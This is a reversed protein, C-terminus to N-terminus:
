KLEGANQGFSPEVKLPLEPWWKPSMSMIKKTVAGALYVEKDPVIFWGEDHIQHVSPWKKEIILMQETLLERALAQCANEVLMGGFIKVWEFRRTNNNYREYRFQDGDFNINKYHLIMGSPLTIKQDGVVMPGWQAEGGHCMVNLMQKGTKWNEVIRWYRTRYTDIVTQCFEKTLGLNMSQQYDYFRESGMQYGCGLITAKGVKRRASGIEGDYLSQAMGVYVDEGRRFSEVLEDEGSLLANMRAEIQAQDASMIKFGYPACISGRMDDGNTLNQLNIKETGTYRHTHAGSYLLPVPLKHDPMRKSIEHLRQMRTEKIRSKAQLRAECAMRITESEHNQLKKFGEDTKSLAPIYNGTLSTKMPVTVGQNNLWETFQKNSSLTKQDLGTADLHKQMKRQEAYVANGLRTVDLELLPEIYWRLTSNMVKFERRPIQAIMLNFATRTLAVDLECYERYDAWEQATFDGRRKGLAWIVETGKNGIGLGEALNKLSCSGILHRLTIRAMLMTDFYGTPKVGYKWNLISGDFMTNQALLHNEHVKWDMFFERCQANSLGALDTTVITGDELRLSAILCEFREDNIYEETTMKHLSYEGDYYTELDLTILGM